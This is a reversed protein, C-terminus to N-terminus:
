QCPHGECARHTGEARQLAEGLPAAQERLFQRMGKRRRARAKDAAEKQLAKREMIGPLLEERLPSDTGFYKRAADTLFDIILLRMERFARNDM